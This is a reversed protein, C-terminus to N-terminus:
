FQNFVKRILLTDKQHINCEKLAEDIADQFINKITKYNEINIEINNDQIYKKIIEILTQVEINQIDIKNKKENIIIEYEPFEYNNELDIYSLNITAKQYDKICNLNFLILTRVSFASVVKQYIDENKRSFCNIDIYISDYDKSIKEYDIWNNYPYKAILYLAKEISDVKLINANEKLEFLVAPLNYPDDFNRYFLVHPNECLYDVWENYNLYNMDYITAWLGGTPKVGTTNKIDLFLESSLKNTGVSLYNM